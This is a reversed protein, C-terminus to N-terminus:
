GWAALMTFDQTSLASCSPNGSAFSGRASAASSSAVAGFDLLTTIPMSAAIASTRAPM